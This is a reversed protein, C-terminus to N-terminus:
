FGALRECRETQRCLLAVMIMPDGDAATCGVAIQRGLPCAYCGTVRADSRQTAPWPITARGLVYQGFYFEPIASAGDRDRRAAIMVAEDPKLYGPRGLRADGVRQNAELVACIVNDNVPRPHMPCLEILGHTPDVQSAARV